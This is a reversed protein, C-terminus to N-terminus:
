MCVQMCVCVCVHICMCVVCWVVCVCLNVQTSHLMCLVRRSAYVKACVREQMDEEFDRLAGSGYMCVCVFFLVCLVSRHLISCICLVGPPMCRHM